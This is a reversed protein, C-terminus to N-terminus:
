NGPSEAGLSGAAAQELEALRSEAIPGFYGDGVQRYGAVADRIHELAEALLAAQDMRRAALAAIGNALNHKSRAWLHPVIFRTRAELAARTATIAEELRATCNQLEGLVRLEVGLNDQATAWDLPV